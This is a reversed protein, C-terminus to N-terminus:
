ENNLEILINNQSRNYSIMYDNWSTVNWELIQKSMPSLLEKTIARNVPRAWNKQDFWEREIHEVFEDKFSIWIWIKKFTEKTWELKLKIIENVEDRTLNNFFILNDFRNVFEPRFSKELETKVEHMKRKDWSEWLYQAPLDLVRRYVISWINSTMVIITNKFSHTIWKNDTLHWEDLLQLFLDLVNSHAKEIEDFLIVSSPNKQVANTLLWWIEYWPRWAPAWVLKYISELTSYESMDFRIMNNKNWFLNLAISKALETKWVWTPWLFLFSWIPRDPDSLWTKAIVISDSVDEIAKKHWIVTKAIEEPLTRLKWIEKWQLNKIQQWWFVKSFKKEIFELTLVNEDINEHRMEEFSTYTDILDFFRWILFKWSSYQQSLELIRSLVKEDSIKCKYEKEFIWLNNSLEWYIYKEDNIPELRIVVFDSFFWSDFQIFKTYNQLSMSAIKIDKLYTPKFQIGDRISISSYKESVVEMLMTKWVWSEWIILINNNHRKNLTIEILDLEKERWLFIM